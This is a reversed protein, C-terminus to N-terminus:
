LGMGKGRRVGGASTAIRLLRRRDGACAADILGQLVGAARLHRALGSHPIGPFLLHDVGPAAPFGAAQARDDALGHFLITWIGPVPMPPGPDPLGATLHQWRPDALDSQPGIALVASLPVLHAARLACVAGMSSGIAIRNRAPRAAALAAQLMPAFDPHLGWSRSEDMIFLARRNGARAASQFEPAPMRAPDHGISSFAIVLDEGGGEALEVRFPPADRLCALTVAGLTVAGPTM